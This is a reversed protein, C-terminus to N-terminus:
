ARHSPVMQILGRKGNTHWAEDEQDLHQVQESSLGLVPESKLTRLAMLTSPFFDVVDAIPITPDWVVDGVLRRYNADGKLFVIQAEEFVRRLQRPMDWMFLPSNWFLNPALRLRGETFATQLRQGMAVIADSRGNGHPGSICREITILVDENIADSVFTPHYKTHLIVVDSFACLLADALALDMALETGANDVIIHSVGQEAEPFYALQAKMLHDRMALADDVLLDEATASTGHAAVDMYSLDIRNGWMAFAALNPLRDYIGGELHLARELMDWLAPSNLEEQKFPTYPDRRTEWWRCAEVILRFLVTEAYFWDTNLWTPRQRGSRDVSASAWEIYDPTPTPYLNLMMIPRDNLLDELLLRLEDAIIPPYDPNAELLDILMKPQRVTMTHYAFPNSGDTRIFPPLNAPASM